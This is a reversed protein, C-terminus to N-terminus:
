FTRRGIHGIVEDFVGEEAAVRSSWYQAHVRLGKLLVADKGSVPETRGDILYPVSEVAPPDPQDPRTRVNAEAAADLDYRGDDRFNSSFVDSPAYINVWAKPAGALAFRQEFYDRWYCRVFDFPCGITILRNITGVRPPPQRVYPFLADIAVISGFSYAVVDVSAHRRPLEALHELLEALQGRLRSGNDEGRDLYDVISYGVLATAGLRRAAASKWIGLGGILLIPAEIFRAWTPLDGAVFSAALGGILLILGVIMLAMWARGYALQVREVRTKAGDPGKCARRSRPVARALVRAAFWLQALLSRMARDGILTPATALGYFDLVPRTGAADTRLITARPVTMTEGVREPAIETRLSFTAEPVDRRDCAFAVRKAIDALGQDVGQAGLGSIWIVAARAREGDAGSTVRAEPADQAAPPDSVAIAM